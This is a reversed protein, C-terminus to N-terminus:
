VFEEMGRWLVFDWPVLRFYDEDSRFPHENLLKVIAVGLDQHSIGEMVLRQARNERDYSDVKIIKWMELKLTEEAM